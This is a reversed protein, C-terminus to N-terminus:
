YFDMLDRTIVEPGGATAEALRLDGLGSGVLGPLAEQVGKRSLKLRSAVGSGM